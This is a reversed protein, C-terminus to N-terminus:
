PGDTLGPRPLPGGRGYVPDTQPLPVAAIRRQAEAYEPPDGRLLDWDLGDRGGRCCRTPPPISITQPDEATM